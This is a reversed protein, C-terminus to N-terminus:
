IAKGFTGRMGRYDKAATAPNILRQAFEALNKSLPANANFTALPVGRNISSFINEFDNPFIWFVRKGLTKEAAELSLPTSKIFRNVLFEVKQPPLGLKRILEFLRSANRVAPVSLDIVIFVKDSATFAQVTCDNVTMSPCDIIVGSHTERLLSCIKEVHEPRVEEGDEPKNPAPLFNLGTAHRALVGKLFHADLRHFNGCLDIITKEQVIDLLTSDDAAQFCLDCLAVTNGKQEALLAATNVALSTSGLGGKSSIFSYCAGLRSGETRGRQERVKEVARQLIASQVPTVFYETAGAKMVEVIHEPRCDASIVFIAALPFNHHLSILRRLLDSNDPQDELLIIQPPSKFAATGHDGQDNVSHILNICSIEKLERSIEEALRLDQIEFAINLDKGM